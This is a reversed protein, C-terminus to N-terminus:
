PVEVLTSLGACWTQCRFAGVPLESPTSHVLSEDLIGPVKFLTFWLKRVTKWKHDNQMLGHETAYAKAICFCLSCLIVTQKQTYKNAQKKLIQNMLTIQVKFSLQILQTPTSPFKFFSSLFTFGLLGPVM